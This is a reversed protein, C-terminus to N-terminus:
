PVYYAHSPGTMTYYSGDFGYSNWRAAYLNLVQGTSSYVKYGTKEQYREGSMEPTNYGRCTAGSNSPGVYCTAYRGNGMIGVEFKIKWYVTAQGNTSPIAIIDTGSIVDIWDRNNLSYQFTIQGYSDMTIGSQDAVYEGFTLPIQSGVDSSYITVM